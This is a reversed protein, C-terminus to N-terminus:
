LICTHHCWLIIDFICYFTVFNSIGMVEIYITQIQNTSKTPNRLFALWKALGVGGHYDQFAIVFLSFLVLFFAFQHYFIIWVFLVFYIAINCGFNLIAALMVISCMIPWFTGLIWASELITASFFWNTVLATIEVVWDMLWPPLWLCCFVPFFKFWFWKNLTKSLVWSWCYKGLIYKLQFILTESFLHQYCCYYCHLNYYKFWCLQTSFSWQVCDTIHM